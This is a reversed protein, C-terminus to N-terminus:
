HRFHREGTMLMPVRARQAAQIVAPDQISGGPQAIAAIGARVALRPGDPKPFFGDSALVAGRARRGAKKLAIRVSDVRSPQGAGIGVTAEDKVVVIANSRVHQSVRWAFLLDRMQSATPKASTAARWRSPPKLIRDPGQVLLGGGIPKFDVCNRGRAKGWGPVELVRLNKKVTLIRLAEPKFGPAVVCELFGSGAIARAAAPDVRRNVGVIGGFASVPDTAFARAVARSLAAASAIGCPNAHKVVAATPKSFGSAMSLAADLDLLNNFSLEKGHLQRAGSIGLAGGTLRPWEYWFGPQHPNEGYRLTQRKRAALVLLSPGDSRRSPGQRHALVQHIVADYYACQSFAEVALRMRTAHTLQGGRQNLERLVEQYQSSATVVGVSSFNKAASRMLAVGGIDIQEILKAWSVGPRAATEEFPYLNVVVLDIPELGLRKAEALHRRNARSILIGGHVKPHLTKVRGTLIEPFGTFEAIAKVPIGADKLLKATGGTSIIQVGLRRLGQVFPILNEKDSVSVLARRM